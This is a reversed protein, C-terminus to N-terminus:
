RVKARTSLSFHRRLVTMPGAFFVLASILGAVFFLPELGAVRIALWAGGGLLIMKLFLATVFLPNAKRNVPSAAPDAAEFFRKGVYVVLLLNLDFLALGAAYAGLRGDMGTQNFVLAIALLDLLATAKLIPTM